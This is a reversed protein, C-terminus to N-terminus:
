IYRLNCSFFCSGSKDKQCHCVHYFYGLNISQDFKILSSLNEIDKEIKAATEMKKEKRKKRNKLNVSIFITSIRPLILVIMSVMLTNKVFHM